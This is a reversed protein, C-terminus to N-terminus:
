REVENICELRMGRVSQGKRVLQSISIHGWGQASAQTSRPVGDFSYVVFNRRFCVFICCFVLSILLFMM